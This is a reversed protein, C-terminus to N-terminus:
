LPSWMQRPKVVRERRSRIIPVDPKRQVNTQPQVSPCVVHENEMQLPDLIISEDNPRFPLIDNFSENKFQSSHKLKESSGSNNLFSGNQIHAENMQQSISNPEDDPDSLYEVNALWSPPANQGGYPYM